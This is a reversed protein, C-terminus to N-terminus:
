LDLKEFFHEEKLKAVDWQGEIKESWHKHCIIYNAVLDEIEFQDARYSYFPDEEEFNIQFESRVEEMSM